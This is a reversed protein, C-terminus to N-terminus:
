HGLLALLGGQVLGIWIGLALGLRVIGQIERGAVRHVLAELDRVPLNRLKEAIVPGIAIHGKIFGEAEDM